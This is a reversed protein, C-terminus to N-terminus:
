ENLSAFYLKLRKAHEFNWVTVRYISGSIRIRVRTVLALKPKARSEVSCTM